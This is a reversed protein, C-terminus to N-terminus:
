RLIENKTKKENYEIKIFAEAVAFYKDVWVVIFTEKYKPIALTVPWMHKIIIDKEKENLSLFTSAIEYARKGHTFAHHGKRGNERKRWDYLFMDHLLAARAASIYDLHFKKCILYTNYSVFLCHDLCNINYHQRYQKMEQVKERRLLDYILIMYEKDELIKSKDRIM